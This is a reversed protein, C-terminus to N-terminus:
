KAQQQKLAAIRKEMMDKIYEQLVRNAAHPTLIQLPGVQDFTKQFSPRSTIAEAYETLRAFRPSHLADWVSKGDETSYNGIGHRVMLYMRGLFPAVAIDANTFQDGVAYPKDAPLLAQVAELAALFANASEGRFAFAAWAPTVKAGVNEIFFRAKARLVPDKPLLHSDPYLDSLFEILVLSEAIKVSDPSPQDPPVKPGGYAIAPVQIDYLHTEARPPARLVHTSCVSRAPLISRPRTGSLSTRYTLKM